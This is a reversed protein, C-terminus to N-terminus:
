VNVKGPWLKLSYAVPHISHIVENFLRRFTAIKIPVNSVCLLCYM